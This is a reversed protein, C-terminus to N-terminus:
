VKRRKKKKVGLMFAPEITDIIDLDWIQIEPEMTGVAVYNGLIFSEFKYIRERVINLRNRLYIICTLFSPHGKACSIM